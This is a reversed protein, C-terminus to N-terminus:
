ECTIKYDYPDTQKLSIRMCKTKTSNLKSFNKECYIEINYLDNQLLQCDSNSFIRKVLVTDDAYSFLHIEVCKPMVATYLNFLTPSLIGGQLCGSVVNFDEAFINNYKFKQRRNVFTDSLIDIFKGTIGPRQLKELLKNHCVSDFADSLDLFKMDIGIYEKNNFSSFILRQIDKHINNM